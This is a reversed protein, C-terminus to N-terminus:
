SYSYNKHIHISIVLISILLEPILIVYYISRALNREKKKKKLETPVVLYLMSVQREVKVQLLRLLEKKKLFFFIENIILFKVFNVMIVTMKWDEWIQGVIRIVEGGCLLLLPCPPSPLPLLFLLFFSTFVTHSHPPAHTYVCM